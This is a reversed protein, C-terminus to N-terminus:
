ICVCMAVWGGWAGPRRNPIRSSLSLSLFFTHKHTRTHTHSLSNNPLGTEWAVCDWEEWVYANHQKLPGVIGSFFPHARPAWNQTKLNWFAQCGFIRVVPEINPKISGFYSSLADKENEVVCFTLDNHSKWIEGHCINVTTRWFCTITLRLNWNFNFCIIYIILAVPPLTSRINRAFM